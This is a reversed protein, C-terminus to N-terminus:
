REFEADQIMYDTWSHQARVRCDARNANMHNKSNEYTNGTM